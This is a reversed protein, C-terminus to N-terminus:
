VDEILEGKLAQNYYDLPKQPDHDPKEGSYSTIDGLLVAANLNNLSLSKEFKAIKEDINDAVTGLVIWAWSDDKDAHQQLNLDVALNKKTDEDLLEFTSYLWGERDEAKEKKIYKVFNSSDAICKKAFASVSPSLSDQRAAIEFHSLADDVSKTLGGM